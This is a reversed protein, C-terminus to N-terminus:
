IVIGVKELQGALQKIALDTEPQLANENAGLGGNKRWLKHYRESNDSLRSKYAGNDFQTLINELAQGKIIEKEYDSKLKDFTIESRDILGMLHEASLAKYEITLAGLAVNESDLRTQISKVFDAQTARQQKNKADAKQAQLIQEEVRVLEDAANSNGLKLDVLLSNKKEILSPTEAVLATLTNEILLQNLKEIQAKTADIKSKLDTIQTM